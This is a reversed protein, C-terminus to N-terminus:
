GSFRLLGEVEPWGWCSAGHCWVGLPRALGELGGDRVLAADAGRFLWLEDRAVRRPGAECHRRVAVFVRGGARARRSLWGVQEPRFKVALAPTWKCEVWGECGGCCYNADPIGGGTAGSEIAQWHFHPLNARLIKRLGADPVDAGRLQRACKMPVSSTGAIWAAASVGCM